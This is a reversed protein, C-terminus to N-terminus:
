SASLLADSPDIVSLEGDEQLLLSERHLQLLRALPCDVIQEPTWGPVLRLFSLCYNDLWSGPPLLPICRQKGKAGTPLDAAQLDQYVTALYGEIELASIVVSRGAVNRVLRYRAWGARWGFAYLNKVLELGRSPWRPWARVPRAFDPHLRWLFQFIDGRMPQEGGGCFANGALRLENVHRPTLHRVPVGCLPAPVALHALQRNRIEAARAALFKPNVPMPSFFRGPPM